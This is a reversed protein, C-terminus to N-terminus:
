ISFLNAVSCASAAVAGIAIWRCSRRWARVCTCWRWSGDMWGTSKKHARVFLCAHKNLWWTLHILHRPFQFLTSHYQQSAAICTRVHQRNIRKYRINCKRKHPSPYLSSHTNSKERLDWTTAIEDHTRTAIGDTLWCSPLSGIVIGGCFDSAGFRFGPTGRVQVLCQDPSVNASLVRSACRSKRRESSSCAAM